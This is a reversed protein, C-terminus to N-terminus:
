VPISSVLCYINTAFDRCCLQKAGIISCPMVNASMYISMKIVSVTSYKIMTLSENMRHFVYVTYPVMSPQLKFCQQSIITWLLRNRSFNQFPLITNTHNLKTIWGSNEPTSFCYTNSSIGRWQYHINSGGFPTTISNYTYRKNLYPIRSLCFALETAWALQPSMERSPCFALETACVVQPSM